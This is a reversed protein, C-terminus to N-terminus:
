RYYVYSVGYAEYPLLAHLAATCVAFNAIKVIHLAKSIEQSPDQRM